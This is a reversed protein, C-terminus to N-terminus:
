MRLAEVIYRLTLRYAAPPIEIIGGADTEPRPMYWGEAVSEEEGCPYLLLAGRGEGPRLFCLPRGKGARVGPCGSLQAEELWHGPPLAEAVGRSWGELRLGLLLLFDDPLSVMGGGLRDPRVELGAMSRWGTLEERPTAKVARSACDGIELRIRDRLSIDGCSGGADCEEGLILLVDDIVDEERM